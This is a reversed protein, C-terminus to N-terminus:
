EGKLMRLSTATVHRYEAAPVSREEEPKIVAILKKTTRKKEQWNEANCEVKRDLYM